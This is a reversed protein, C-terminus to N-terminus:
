VGRAARAAEVIARADRMAADNAETAIPTANMRKELAVAEGRLRDPGNVAYNTLYANRIMKADERLADRRDEDAVLWLAVFV